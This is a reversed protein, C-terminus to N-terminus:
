KTAAMEDLIGRALAKADEATGNRLVAELRKQAEGSKGDRYLALGLWALAHDDRPDMALSQKEFIEAARAYEGKHAHVMGLGLVPGIRDPQAGHLAEFISASETFRGQWLGMFAIKGLLRADEHEILM